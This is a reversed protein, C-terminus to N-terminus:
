PLRTPLSSHTSMFSKSLPVELTQMLHHSITDKMLVAMAGACGIDGAIIPEGSKSDAMLMQSKGSISLFQWVNLLWLSIM